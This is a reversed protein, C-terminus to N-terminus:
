GLFVHENHWALHEASPLDHAGRPVVQLPRDHYPYYSRGNEYDTRLRRSVIIKREPTVTVYGKDFLRHLDSRLLLGNSVEHPGDDSYPRIHAAELAPLSHEGTVACARQYADTVAVRFTGQGLRPQIMVPAGYRPTGERVEQPFWDAHERLVSQSNMRERCADWVRRGEGATLDYRVPTLSRVPWNSPQPVWAERPFFMPNVLLICGIMDPGEREVYRMGQRLRCIKAQMAPLSECGNGRDFCEWAMWDPLRTWTAFFALGCIANHPSKLKFFFPSFREARFARHASPTWFNVEQLGTSALFQYWGFDTPSITGTIPDM